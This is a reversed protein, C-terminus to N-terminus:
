VIIGYFYARNSIELPMKVAKKGDSVAPQQCFELNPSFNKGFLSNWSQQNIAVSVNRSSAGDFNSSGQIASDGALAFKPLHPFDGLDFRRTTGVSGTVKSKGQLFREFRIM